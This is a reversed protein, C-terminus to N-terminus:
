FVHNPLLYGPQMKKLREEEVALTGTNCCGQGEISNAGKGEKAKREEREFALIRSKKGSGEVSHAGFSAIGDQEVYLSFCGM